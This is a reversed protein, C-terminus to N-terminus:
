AGESVFDTTASLLYPEVDGLEGLRAQPIAPLGDPFRGVFVV